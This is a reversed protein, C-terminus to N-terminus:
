EQDRDHREYTRGELDDSLEGNALWGHYHEHGISPTVTLNPAEGTVDWGGGDRTAADMHFPCGCPLVVMYSPRNGYGNQWFNRSFGTGPNDPTRDGVGVEFLAGPVTWYDRTTEKDVIFVKTTM